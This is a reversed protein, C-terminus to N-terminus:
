NGEAPPRKTLTVYLDDVVNWYHNIAYSRADDSKTAWLQSFAYGYTFDFDCNIGYHDLGNDLMWQRNFYLYSTESMFRKHTPDQFARRSTYYPTIILAQAGPKMIRYLENMFAILDETHEVYHSCRVEDVSNDEFPWPFVTLDHVVDVGDMEVMDVGVWGPEKRQGCGLDVRVLEAEPIADANPQVLKPKTDTTKVKPKARTKTTKKPATTM